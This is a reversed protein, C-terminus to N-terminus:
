RTMGLYLFGLQHVVHPDDLGGHKADPRLARNRLLYFALAPVGIVWLLAGPIGAAIVVTLHDGEFCRLNPDAHLYRDGDDLKMCTFLQLVAKTVTPHILFLVVVITVALKEWVIAGVAGYSLDLM